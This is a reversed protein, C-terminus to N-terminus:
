MRRTPRAWSPATELGTNMPPSLSTKLTLTTIAVLSAQWSRKQNLFVTFMGAVVAAMLEADTYRGLQKLAELVPALYPLGRRQGIREQYLLHLINRRGTKAGFAPVSLRRGWIQTL